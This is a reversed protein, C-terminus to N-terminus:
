EYFDAFLFGIVERNLQPETLTMEDFMLVSEIQETLCVMTKRCVIETIGLREIPTHNM